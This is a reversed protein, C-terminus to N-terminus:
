RINNPPQSFLLDHKSSVLLPLAMLLCDIADIQGDSLWRPHVDNELDPLDAHYQNTCCFGTENDFSICYEARTMTDSMNEFITLAPGHLQGSDSGSTPLTEYIKPEYVFDVDGGIVMGLYKFAAPSITDLEKSTVTLQYQRITADEGIIPIGEYTEPIPDVSGGVDNQLNGYSVLVNHSLALTSHLQGQSAESYSM